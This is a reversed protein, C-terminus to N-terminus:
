LYLVPNATQNGKNKNIKKEEENRSDQYARIRGDEPTVQHM